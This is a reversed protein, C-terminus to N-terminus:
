SQRTKKVYIRFLRLKLVFKSLKKDNFYPAIYAPYITIGSVLFYVGTVGYAVIKKM